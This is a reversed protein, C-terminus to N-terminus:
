EIQQYIIREQKALLQNKIFSINYDPDLIKRAIYKWNIEVEDNFGMM